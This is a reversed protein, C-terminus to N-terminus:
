NRIFPALCFFCLAPLFHMPVVLGPFLEPSKIDLPLSLSFPGLISVFSVVVIVVNMWGMLNQKDFRKLLMYSVSMLVCGFICAGAISCPNVVANFDTDLAKQYIHLYIIASIAALVGAIIGHLFIKKM